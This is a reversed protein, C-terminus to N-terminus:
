SVSDTANRDQSGRAGNTVGAREARAAGERCLGRPLLRPLTTLWSGIWAASRRRHLSRLGMGERRLSLRAQQQQLPTLDDLNALKTFIALAANDAATAFAATAAPPLLRTLHTLRGLGCTRLLLNGSQARPLHPAAEEATREVM